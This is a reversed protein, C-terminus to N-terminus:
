PQEKGPMAGCTTRGLKKCLECVEKCQSGKINRYVDFVVGQISEILAQVDATPLPEPQGANKERLKAEIADMLPLTRAYHERRIETREDLTLGVWQRQAAPPTTKVDPTFTSFAHIVMGRMFNFEDQTDPEYDLAFQQVGVKFMMKEGRMGFEIAKQAAPPTANLTIRKKHIAVCEARLHALRATQEPTQDDRKTENIACMEGYVAALEAMSEFWAVPQVPAAAPPTTYVIRVTHGHTKNYEYSQKAQDIWKGDMMQMQYIPEQVPQVAGAQV